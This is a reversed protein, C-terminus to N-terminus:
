SHDQRYRAKMRRATERGAAQVWYGIGREAQQHALRANESEARALRVQLSRLDEEQFVSSQPYLEGLSPVLAESGGDGSMGPRATRYLTTGNGKERGTDTAMTWILEGVRAAASGECLLADRLCERQFAM